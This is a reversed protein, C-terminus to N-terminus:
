MGVGIAIPIGCHATIIAAKVIEFVLKNEVSM